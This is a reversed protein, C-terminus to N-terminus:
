AMFLPWKYSSELLVHDRYLTPPLSETDGTKSRNSTIGLKFSSSALLGLTIYAAMYSVTVKLVEADSVDASFTCALMGYLKKNPQVLTLESRLIFEGTKYVYFQIPISTIGLIIAIPLLNKTLSRKM